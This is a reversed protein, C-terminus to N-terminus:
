IALTPTSTTTVLILPSIWHSPMLRHNAIGTTSPLSIPSIPLREAQGVHRYSQELGLLRLLQIRDSQHVHGQQPRVTWCAQLLQEVARVQRQDDRQPYLVRTLIKLRVSCFPVARCTGTIARSPIDEPPRFLRQNPVLNPITTLSKLRDTTPPPDLM